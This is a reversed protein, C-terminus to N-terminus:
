SHNNVSSSRLGIPNIAINNRIANNDVTIDAGYKERWYDIDGDKITWKIDSEAKKQSLNLPYSSVRVKINHKLISEWFDDKKSNLLVGNTTLQITSDKFYKRSIYFFDNIGEHLLPEGGMLNLKCVDTLDSLRKIDREFCDIGLKKSPSITSFHGCGQCKMNCHEVIHIECYGIENESLRWRKDKVNINM